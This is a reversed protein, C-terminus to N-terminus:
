RASRMGGESLVGIVVLLILGGCCLLTVTRGIESTFFAFLGLVIMAALVVWFITRASRSLNNYRNRSYRM